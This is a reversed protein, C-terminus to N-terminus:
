SLTSNCSVVGLHKSTLKRKKNIDLSRTSVLAKQIDQEEQEKRKKMRKDADAQTAVLVAAAATATASVAANLVQASSSGTPLQVPVVNKSHGHPQPTIAASSSLLFSPRWAPLSLGMSPPLSRNPTPMNQIRVPNHVTCLHAISSIACIECPPATASMTPPVVAAFQAALIMAVRQDQSLNGTSQMNRHKPSTKHPKLLLYISQTPIYNPYSEQRNSTHPAPIHTTPAHKIKSSNSKPHRVNKQTM